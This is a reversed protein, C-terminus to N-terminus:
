KDYEYISFDLVHDIVKYHKIIYLYGERDLQSIHEKTRKDTDDRVLIKKNKNKKLEKILKKSSNYGLNGHNVLDLYGVKQNNIVRYLYATDDYIITNSDIYKNVENIYNIGSNPYYKTNLNNFSNPYKGIDDNFRNFTIIGILGIFLCTFIIKNNIIKLEYNNIIFLVFFFLVYYLHLIDFTPIFITYAFLIYLNNITYKKRCIILSCITIISFIIICMINFTGSNSSFDILGLFCQDIYNIFNSCIVLYLLSVINPIIFGIIRKKLNIDKIKLLWPIILVIGISQKTLFSLGIIIGIFLDKHKIESQELYLTLILLIIIFSNYTPYICNIFIISIILLYLAKDKYMKFALYFAFTMFLGHLIIFSLYNKFLFLSFSMLLPYFPPIVMNFDNYPIEGMRIALSFGYNWVEDMNNPVLFINFLVIFIFLFVYPIIIKIIKM